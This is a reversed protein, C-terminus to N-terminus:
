GARAARGSGRAGGRRRLRQHAPRGGEAAIRGAWEAAEDLRGSRWSVRVSVEAARVRDFTVMERRVWGSRRAGRARRASRRARTRADAITWGAQNYPAVGMHEHMAHGHEVAAEPRGRMLSTWSLVASAFFAIQSNGSILGSELAEEAGAEADDLRGLEQDAYSRLVV